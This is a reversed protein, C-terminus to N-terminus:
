RSSECSAVCFRPMNTPAFAQRGFQTSRPPVFLRACSDRQCSLRSAVSRHEPFAHLPNSQPWHNSRSGKGDALEFLADCFMKRSMAPQGKADNAWDAAIQVAADAADYERLVVRYIRDFMQMYGDRTLTSRDEGVGISLQAALWFQQLEERVLTSNRLRARQKLKEDEYLSVDGQQWLELESLVAEDEVTTIVKGATINHAVASGIKKARIKLVADSGDLMSIGRVGKRLKEMYMSHSKHAKAEPHLVTSKRLRSKMFSTLLM